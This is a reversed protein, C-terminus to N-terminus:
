DNTSIVRVFYTFMIKDRQLLIVSRRISQIPYVLSTFIFAISNIDKTAISSFRFGDFLLDAPCRYEGRRFLYHM